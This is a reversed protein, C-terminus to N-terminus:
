VFNLAQDLLYPKANVGYLLKTIKSINNKLDANKDLSDLLLCMEVLSIKTSLSAVKQDFIKTVEEPSLKNVDAFHLENTKAQAAAGPPAAIGSPPQVNLGFAPAVTSILPIWKSPDNSQMKMTLEMNKQVMANNEKMMGVITNVYETPTIAGLPMQPAAVAITNTDTKPFELEWMFSVNERATRDKKAVIDLRRYTKFMDIHDELEKIVREPSNEEITLLNEGHHNKLVVYNVKNKKILICINDVTM